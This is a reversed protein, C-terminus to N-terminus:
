RRGVRAPARVKVDPRKVEIQLRAASDSTQADFTVAYQSLLSDALKAMAAGVAAPTFVQEVYGGSVRAADEELGPGIGYAATRGVALHERVEPGVGMPEFYRAREASYPAENLKSTADLPYRTSRCDATGSAATPADCDYRLAVVVIVPRVINQKDFQYILDKALAGVTMGSSSLLMSTPTRQDILENTATTLASTDRTFNVVTTGPRMTAFLGIEARDKMAKIFGALPEQLEPAIQVGHNVILALHMLEGAPAVSIITQPKGDVNVVVEGLALDRVLAGEKDVASLFITRRQAETCTGLLAAGSLLLVGAVVLFRKM